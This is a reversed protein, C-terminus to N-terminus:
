ESVHDFYLKDTGPYWKGIYKVEHWRGAFAADRCAGKTYQKGDLEWRDELWDWFDEQIAHRYGELESKAWRPLGKYDETDLVEEHYHDILQDLTYKDLKARRYIGRIQEMYRRVLRLSKELTTERAMELDGEQKAMMLHRM